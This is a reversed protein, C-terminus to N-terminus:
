RVEDTLTRYVACTAGEADAVILGEVEDANEVENLVPSELINCFNTEDSKDFKSYEVSDESLTWNIVDTLKSGPTDVLPILEDGTKSFIDEM